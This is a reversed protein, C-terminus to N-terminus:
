RRTVFLRLAQALEAQDQAPDFWRAEAQARLWTVQRKALQRTAAVAHDRFTDADADTDGDLFRWAQRYGVARMSPLDPHLRPDARLRRVEDLFGDALMQDFRRAIREHLVARDAPALVLRLVRFPFRRRVGERQWQSIPRGTARYVELARTIRQPDQPKIRLGADPDVAALEAHLAPWGREAAQAAIVARLAPDAPPMDSLGNLLASFYLGTGGVLLPVRGRAALAHMPPLAQRAFDAASFVEHPDRVDVLHHPALALTAADPKAAGIDLGRYVLASDVSIVQTDLQQAWDVALATKGSATPGM